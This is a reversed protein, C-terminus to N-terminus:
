PSKSQSSLFLPFVCHGVICARGCSLDFSDLTMVMISTPDLKEARFEYRYGYFPERARSDDIDPNIVQPSMISQMSKTYGHLTIRTYASNEPLFRAADIYFDIGDNKEFPENKFQEKDNPIFPAEEPPRNYPPPAIPPMGPVQKLPNNKYPDMQPMSPLPQSVTVKISTQM